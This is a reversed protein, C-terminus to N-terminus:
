AAFVLERDEDVGARVFPNRIEGNVLDVRRGLLDQMAEAFGFYQRLASLDPRPAFEVLFDADSSAPDFDSARAASGFAELRTVGFRRCLEAIDNRHQAVATHM